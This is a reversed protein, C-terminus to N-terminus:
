GLYFGRTVTSVIGLPNSLHYHPNIERGLRKALEDAIEKYTPNGRKNVVNDLLIEALAKDIDKLQTM